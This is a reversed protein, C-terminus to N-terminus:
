IEMSCFEAKNSLYTIRRTPPWFSLNHFKGLVRFPDVGRQFGGWGGKLLPPCPPNRAPSHYGHFIRAASQPEALGPSAGSFRDMVCKEFWARFEFSEARRTETIPNQIKPIQKPNPIQFKQKMNLPALKGSNSYVFQIPRTSTIAKNSMRDTVLRNPPSVAM